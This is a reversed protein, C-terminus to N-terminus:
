AVDLCQTAITRAISDRRISRIIRKDLSEYTDGLEKIFDVLEDFSFKRCMYDYTDRIDDESLKFGVVNLIPMLFLLDKRAETWGILPLPMFMFRKNKRKQDFYKETNAKVWENHITDLALVSAEALYYPDKFTASYKIKDFHKQWDQSNQDGIIVEQMFSDPSLFFYDPLMAARCGNNFGKIAAEISGKAGIYSELEDFDARSLLAEKEREPMDTYWNDLCSRAIELYINGCM